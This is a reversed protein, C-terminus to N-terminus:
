ARLAPLQDAVHDWADCTADIAEALEPPGEDHLRARLSALACDALQAVEVDDLGELHLREALRGPRLEGNKDSPADLPRIAGRDPTNPRVGGRHHIVKNPTLKAM